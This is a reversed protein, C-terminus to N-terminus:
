ASMWSTRGSAKLKDPKDPRDTTKEHYYEFGDAFTMVFAEAEDPSHKLVKKIKEKSIVQLRVRDKEWKATSLGKILRENNPISILGKEFAEACNFWMEARKNHFREKNKASGQSEVKRLNPIHKQLECYLYYGLGNADIYKRDYYKHSMRAVLEDKVDQRKTENIEKLEILRGMIRRIYITKDKGAGSPDVGECCPYDEPIDLEKDVAAMLCEFNIIADEEVTPFEGRAYVRYYNADRNGGAADLKDQLSQASVLTSTEASHHLAIWKKKETADMQTKYAFGTTRRPNFAFMAFNVPGTMTSILADLVNEAVQDAETVIVVMQANHQGFMSGAPANPDADKPCTMIQAFGKNGFKVSEATIEYKRRVFEPVIYKGPRGPDERDLWTRIENWLVTKIQDLKPGTVIVKTQPWCDGLWLIIWANATDKGTGQGARTSVGKKNLVSKLEKTLTDPGWLNRDKAEFLDGVADLIQKVQPDIEKMKPDLPHPRVGLIDRVWLYPNYIYHEYAREIDAARELKM